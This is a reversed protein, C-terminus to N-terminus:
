KLRVRSMGQFRRRARNHLHDKGCDMRPDEITARPSSHSPPLLTPFVSTSNGLSTRPFKPPLHRFGVFRDGSWRREGNFAAWPKSISNRTPLFLVLDAKAFKRFSIKGKARERYDKCRRQCKRIPRIMSGAKGVAELFHDHDFAHLAELAGVPGSHHIPVPDGSHAVIGHRSRSHSSEALNNTVATSRSVPHATMAQVNSTVTNTQACQLRRSRFLM